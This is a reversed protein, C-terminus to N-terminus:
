QFVASVTTMQYIGRVNETTYSFRIESRQHLELLEM